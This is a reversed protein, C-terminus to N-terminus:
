TDGRPTATEYRITTISTFAFYLSNFLSWKNCTHDTNEEVEFKQETQKILEKVGGQTKDYVVHYYISTCAEQLLDMEKEGVDKILKLFREKQATLQTKERIEEPCEITHFLLTGLALYSIYLCVLVFTTKM